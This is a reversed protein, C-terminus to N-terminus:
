VLRRPISASFHRTKILAEDEYAEMSASLEFTEETSSLTLKSKTRVNWDKRALSWDGWGEIRASNPKGGVIHFSEGSQKAVDTETANVRYASKSRHVRVVVEGTAPDEETTRTRGGDSSTTVAGPDEAVAPGFAQPKTIAKGADLVPLRLRSDATAITVATQRPAPWAMPWFSNSIAIRIRHGAPFVHAIDNLKIRVIETKGAPFAEPKDAGHRQAVNLLGYTVNASAGDPFVDSLRAALIATEGDVAISLDLLPAGVIELNEALPETEFVV